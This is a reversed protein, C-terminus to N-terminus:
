FWPILMESKLCLIWIAAFKLLIECFLDIILSLLASIQDIVSQELFNALSLQLLIKLTLELVALEVITLYEAALKIGLVLEALDVYQM